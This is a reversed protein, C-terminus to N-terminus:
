IIKKDKVSFRYEFYSDEALTYGLTDNLAKVTFDRVIGTLKNAGKAETKIWFQVEHNQNGIFPKPTEKPEELVNLDEDFIGLLVMCNEYSPNLIKLKFFITDGIYYDGDGSDLIHVEKKSFTSEFSILGSAGYHKKLFCNEKDNKIAYEYEHEIKGNPYYSIHKGIRKGGQYKGAYKLQGTEYYTKTDGDQIGNKYEIEYEKNGNSYYKEDKNACGFVILLCFCLLLKNM